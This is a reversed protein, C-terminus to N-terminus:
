LVPQSVVTDIQNNDKIPKAHVVNWALGMFELLQITRYSLDFEWWNRGHAASRQQAHHNNHWGEGHALLGILWNNRSNDRTEFSRYGWLHTLSNVSWTVHWVVVTRVIVGWVFLSLGMRLAEDWGGTIAGIGAGLLFILVAHAVYVWIWHQRKELWLYLPDRLLDKAYRDLHRLHGKDRNQLFLWSFHGWCFSVLPSHPDPQDDSDCHHQRHTAVWQAPTDQFCCVGLIALTRELWLPCQFSRHTLLRHYGVTMGLMGFLHHGIIVSAVGTWSFLWPVFALLTLLHMATIGIAYPWSIKLPYVGAPFDHSAATRAVTPSSSMSYFGGPIVIRFTHNCHQFASCVAHTPLCTISHIGAHSFM